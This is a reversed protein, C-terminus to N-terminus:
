ANELPFGAQIWATMGGLLNTVKHFGARCLLSAAISGKFGADCFTIIHRDRPLESLRRPLDGVYIHHSGSITGFRGRTHIDRVDLLFLNPDHLQNQLNHVSWMGTRALPKGAKTWAPFGGALYGELNDYALRYFERSVLNLSENFDDVLLVPNEYDLFWGIFAGVGDRWISLSGPIHGGGFSTPSRIDVVQVEHMWEIEDPRFPKLDPPHHKLPVGELNMVEMTRFYPPYYYQEQSIRGIFEERQMRLLSNAQKEYGITTDPRDIIGAGCVSGSGHAPHLLTQDGLPLLKHMISDFLLAASEVRPIGMLDSRGVDGSFLTDGTFVMLVQSPRSRERLALSISERTHGPTEIMELDLGGISVHDGHRVPQGFHFPTKEGHYITAGCREALERSGTCFDEHRHTEFISTIQMDAARAKQLYVDCDRRPDVVAAEGDSGIFYSYHSVGASVVREIIM